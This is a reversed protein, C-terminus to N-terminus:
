GRRQPDVRMHPMLDLTLDDQPSHDPERLGWDDEDIVQGSRIAAMLDPTYRTGDKSIEDAPRDHSNRIIRIASRAGSSRADAEPAPASGAGNKTRKSNFIMLDKDQALPEM